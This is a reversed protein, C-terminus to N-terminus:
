NTRQMVDWALRAILVAVVVLFLRRVVANGGKIAIRAGVVSGAVNAAAMPLGVAAVMQGAAAFTVVAATNTALNVVKAVGSAAVFGFGFLGVYGFILLNGTGPGFIGDYFGIVLGVAASLMAVSRPELHPAHHLGFHPRRFTYVAVAVLLLLIFPRLLQEDLLGAARAGLWAGVLAPVVAPLAAAWHIRGAHAFQLTAIATGFISSLKNTGLTSALPTGAPMLLLLAPLQILGGGGVAADVLGALFAAAVLVGLQWSEVM